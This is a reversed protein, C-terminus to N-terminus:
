ARVEGKPSVYLIGKCISCKTAKGVWLVIEQKCHPCKKKVVM